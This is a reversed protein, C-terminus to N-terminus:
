LNLVSLATSLISMLLTLTSSLKVHFVIPRLEIFLADLRSIKSVLFLLARYSAHFLPVLLQDVLLFTLRFNM